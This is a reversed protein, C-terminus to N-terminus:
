RGPLQVIQGNVLAPRCRRPHQHRRPQHPHPGAPRDARRRGADGGALPHLAMTPVHVIQGNVLTPGAGGHSSIGDRVTLTGTPWGIRM